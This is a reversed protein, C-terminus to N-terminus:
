RTGPLPSHRLLQRLVNLRASGLVPALYTNGMYIGVCRYPAGDSSNRWGAVRECSVRRGTNHARLVREWHPLAELTAVLQELKLMPQLDIAAFPELAHLRAAVGCAEVSTCGDRAHHTLALLLEAGLPELLKTRISAGGAEVSVGM